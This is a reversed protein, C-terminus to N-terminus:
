SPPRLWCACRQEGTKPMRALVALVILVAAGIQCVPWDRNNQSSEGGVGRVERHTCGHGFSGGLCGLGVGLCRGLCVCAIDIDADAAPGELRPAPHEIRLLERLRLFQGVGGRLQGRDLDVAGIVARLLRLAKAFPGAFHGVAEDERQLPRAEGGVAAHEGLGAIRHLPEIIRTHQLQPVPEARHEPLERRGLFEVAGIKALKKLQQRALEVAARQAMHDLHTVVAKAYGFEDREDALVLHGHHKGLMAFIRRDGVDGAVEDIGPQLLAIVFQLGAIRRLLEVGPGPPKLVPGAAALGVVQRLDVCCRRLLSRSVHEGIHDM